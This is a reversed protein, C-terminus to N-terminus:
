EQDPGFGELRKYIVFSYIVPILAAAVIIAILVPGLPPWGTLGSLMMVLGLLVFIQGGLRHTRVWVEDSALTWPTRIGIFFNKRLKGMYNGLVVLLVGVGPLVVDGPDFPAGRAALVVSVGIVLMFLVFTLKMINVVNLFSEMRFGHPSMWPIVKFLAFVGLTIMPLLWAGWPKATYGDAVGEANWHTPVPDPLDGYFVAVIAFHLVIALLCIFDTRDFRM